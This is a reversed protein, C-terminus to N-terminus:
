VATFVAEHDRSEGPALIITSPRDAFDGDYGVPDGHGTWGEIAVFPAGPPAWLVIHPFGEFAVRLAHGATDRLELGRSAADLLCLSGVRDFLAPTLGLARGAVGSPQMRDSFLRDHLIPVQGSEPRDFLITGTGGPLMFGPHTGLSYPLPESGTNRLHFRQHLSDPTLRYSITLDFGYPYIARTDANDSLRLVLCDQGHDAVAFAADKAFGHLPMDVTQAGHRVRGGRPAGCVPFLVPAVGGWWAPDGSWLLARDGVTWRKPEAGVLSVEARADGSVLSVTDPMPRDPKCYIDDAM